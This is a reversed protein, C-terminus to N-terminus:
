YGAIPRHFVTFTWIEGDLQYPKTVMPYCPAYYNQWNGAAVEDTRLYEWDSRESLRTGSEDRMGGMDWFGTAGHTPDANSNPGYKTWDNVARRVADRVSKFELDVNEILKDYTKLIESFRQDYDPTYGLDDLLGSEHQGWAEAVGWEGRNIKIADFSLKNLLAWGKMYNIESPVGGSSSEFWILVTLYNIEDAELRRNLGSLNPAPKNGQRGYHCIGEEDCIVHGSPDV